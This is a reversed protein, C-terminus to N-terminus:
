RIEIKSVNSFRGNSNRIQISMEGASPIKGRLGYVVIEGENVFSAGKEIGNILVRSDAQLNIGLVAIRYLSGLSGARFHNVEANKRYVKISKILPNIPQRLKANWFADVLLMNPETVFLAGGHGASQLFTLSSDHGVNQFLTQFIQSQGPPVTCDATGHEIFFPPDDKTIYTM